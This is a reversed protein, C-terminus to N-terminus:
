QAALYEDLAANQAVELAVAAQETERWAPWGLKENLVQQHQEVLRKRLVRIETARQGLQELTEAM